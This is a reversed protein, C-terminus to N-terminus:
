YAMTKKAIYKALRNAEDTTIDEPAGLKVLGPHIRLWDSKVLCTPGGIVLKSFEYTSGIGSMVEERFQERPMDELRKLVATIRDM